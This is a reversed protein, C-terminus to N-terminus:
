HLYYPPQIIDGENNYITLLLSPFPTTEKILPSPRARKHAHLTTYKKRKERMHLFERFNTEEM